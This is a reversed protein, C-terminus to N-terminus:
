RLAEIRTSVDMVIHVFDSDGAFGRALTSSMAIRDTGIKPRMSAILDVVQVDDEFAIGTLADQIPKVINDLDAAPADAFFYAVRLVVSDVPVTAPVGIAARAASSVQQMWFRKADRSGQGSM